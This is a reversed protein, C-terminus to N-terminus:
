RKNTLTLIKEVSWNRIVRNYITSTPIGLYTSWDKMCMTKGQFTLWRNSRRNRTQEKHTVWRCNEKCYNGDNDIRDITTEKKGFKKVHKLYSEYMDDRFNEFSKWLVKIGRGGYLDWSNSNINNCRAKMTSYINYFPRHKGVSFGHTILEVRIRGKLYKGHCVHSCFKALGNRVKYYHTKFSNDCSLCNVIVLPHRKM